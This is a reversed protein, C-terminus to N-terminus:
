LKTVSISTTEVEYTNDITISTQENSENQYNCKMNNNDMFVTDINYEYEGGLILGSNLAIINTVAVKYDTIPTNSTSLVIVGLEVQTDGKLCSISVYHRYLGNEKSTVVGQSTVNYTSDAGVLTYAGENAKLTYFNGKGNSDYALVPKGLAYAIALDEVLTSSTLDIMSYGGNLNKM